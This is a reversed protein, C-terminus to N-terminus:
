GMCPFRLGAKFFSKFVVVEDKEPKPTVEEGGFRILEKKDESFYGLKLLKAMDGKTITSKGFELHSPKSPMAGYEDEIEDEEVDDQTAEAAPTDESSVLGSRRMAESILVTETAETEDGDREVRATSRVRAMQNDIEQLKQFNIVKKRLEEESSASVLTTSRKLAFTLSRIHNFKQCCFLAIAIFATTVECWHRLVSFFKPIAQRVSRSPPRRFSSPRRTASAFSGTRRVTFGSLVAARRVSPCHCASLPEAPSRLCLVALPAVARRVPLSLSLPETGRRVASPVAAAQRSVPHTRSGPNA